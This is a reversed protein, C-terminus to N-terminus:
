KPMVLRKLRVVQGGFITHVSRASMSSIIMSYDKCSLFLKELLASRKETCNYIHVTFMYVTVQYICICSVPHYLAAHGTAVSGGREAKKWM